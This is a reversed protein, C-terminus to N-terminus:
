DPLRLAAVTEEGFFCQYEVVCYAYEVLLEVPAEDKAEFPLRLTAEPEFYTIASDTHRFPLNTKWDLGSRPAPTVTIGPDAILKAEGEPRLLIVVEDLRDVGDGPEVWADVTVEADVTPATADFQDILADLGAPGTETVALNAGLSVALSLAAGLCGLLSGAGNRREDAM